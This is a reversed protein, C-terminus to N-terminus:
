ESGAFDNANELVNLWKARREVAINLDEVAIARAIV